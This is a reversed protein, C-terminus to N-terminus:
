CDEPLVSRAGTGHSYQHYNHVHQTGNVFSPNGGIDFQRASQFMSSSGPFTPTSTDDAQTENPFRQSTGFTPNSRSRPIPDDLDDDIMVNPIPQDRPPVLPQQEPGPTTDTSLSM